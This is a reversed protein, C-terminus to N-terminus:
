SFGIIKMSKQGFGNFFVINPQNKLIEEPNKKKKKGFSKSQPQLAKPGSALIWASSPPCGLRFEEIELGGM